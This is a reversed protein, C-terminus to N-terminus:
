AAIDENLLQSVNISYVTCHEKELDQYFGCLKKWKIVALAANLANLEAIQINTSYENDNDDSLPIRNKVHNRKSETSTTVRIIGLLQNENKELGIGVDIFPIKNKELIALLSKKVEGEDFCTFVFDMRTLEEVNSSDLYGDHSIIGRHMKSYIGNLYDAKSKRKKLEEVSPAGPARFANHQLFIDGDYLHIEKVCTKAVFDLIYSGTGGVGIIAIKLNELKQSISNIEARGSNTDPYNFVSEPDNSLIFNFTKETVTDDLSKAPASIIDIYRTVKEYYDSYGGAPKNSFSHNIVIKNGLDKRSNDHQIAEIVSGDKQCPNDGKFHIVHTEPRVTVNGALNLTSVLIGYKVEKNKNVYPVHHVLLFGGIIEIELGEDWLRKLDTSHNIVSHLM